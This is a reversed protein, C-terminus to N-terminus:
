VRSVGGRRSRSNRRKLDTKEPGHNHVSTREPNIGRARHLSNVGSLESETKQEIHTCKQFLSEQEQGQQAASAHKCENPRQM